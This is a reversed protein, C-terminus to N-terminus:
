KAYVIISYFGCKVPHEQTLTTGDSVFNQGGGHFDNSGDQNGSEQYGRGSGCRETVRFYNYRKFDLALRLIRKISSELHTGIIRLSISGHKWARTQRQKENVCSM